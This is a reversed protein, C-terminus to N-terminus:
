NVYRQREIDVILPDLSKVCDQFSEGGPMRYTFPEALFKAYEDPMEKQVEAVTMGHCIGTDLM